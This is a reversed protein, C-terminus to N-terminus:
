LGSGTLLDPAGKKLTTLLKKHYQEAVGWKKHTIAMLLVRADVVMQGAFLLTRNVLENDPSGDIDAPAKAAEKKLSGILNVLQGMSNKVMKMQGLSKSLSSAEDLESEPDGMNEAEGLLDLLEEIREKTDM